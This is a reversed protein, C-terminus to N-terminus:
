NKIIIFLVLFILIFLIYHKTQLNITVSPKQEGEAFDSTKKQEPKPCFHELLIEKDPHLELLKKEAREKADKLFVMTYHYVGHPTNLDHSDYGEELLLKRVAPLNKCLIFDITNINCNNM